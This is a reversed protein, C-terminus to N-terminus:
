TGEELPVVVEVRTGRGPASDVSCRGGLLSARERMVLLGMGASSSSPDFGSGDDTVVLGVSRGDRVLSVRIRPAGGHRLANGVAEQAVRYLSAAVDTPLPRDDEGEEVVEVVGGSRRALSALAAPLGLDDLVSPHLNHALQRVDVLAESAIEHMVQLHACREAPDQAALSTDLLMRIGSLAQATGDHLERALRAREREEVSVVQGALWRERARDEEVRDLLRNLTDAIRVLNRDAVAPMRARASVEGQSVRWTTEELVGLPTLAWAVLATNAVLVVVLSVATLLMAQEAPAFWLAVFAGVDVVVDVVVLKVLLPTRLVREGFTREERVM